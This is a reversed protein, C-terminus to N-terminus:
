YVDGSQDAPQLYAEAVAPRALSRCLVCWCLPCPWLAQLSWFACLCSLKIHCLIPHKGGELIASEAWKHRLESGKKKIQM